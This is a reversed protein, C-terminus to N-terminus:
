RDPKSLLPGCSLHALVRGDQEVGFFQCPPREVYKSYIAGTPRVKFYSEATDSEFRHDEDQPTIIRVGHPPGALEFTWDGYDLGNEIDWYYCSSRLVRLSGEFPLGSRALCIALANADQRAAARDALMVGSVGVVGIALAAFLRKKRWWGRVDEHHCEVRLIWAVVVAAVILVGWARLVFSPEGEFPFAQAIFMRFGLPCHFM